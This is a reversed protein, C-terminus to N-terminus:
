CIEKQVYTSAEQCLVLNEFITIIICMIYNEDPRGVLPSRPPSFKGTQVQGAGATNINSGCGCGCIRQHKVRVRVRLIVNMNVGAGAGALKYVKFGCAVRVKWRSGADARLYAM